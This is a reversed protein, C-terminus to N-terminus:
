KLGDYVIKAFSDPSILSNGYKADFAATPKAAVVEPSTKGQKKLAAVKDRIAVLMDRFEALQARNGVPGHGPVIVTDDSVTALIANDARIMGDIGGGYENDIFPYIGNWFLDGLFVVNAPEFTVYLDSDTHAPPVPILRITQDDFHYTKPKRVLVTPLGEAPTRKFTVNWFDVRTTTSLRKLTNPTAIVTAGAQHLWVNGDTHDWHYHTNVLYKPPASSIAALAEAIAAKSVAIGGDVMFKGNPGTLVGINGGSGELVSINDKLATTTIKAKAAAENIKTVPDTPEKGYCPAAAAIAGLLAVSVASMRM